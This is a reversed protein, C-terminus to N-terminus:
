RLNGGPEHGGDLLQLTARRRGCEIRQSVERRGTAPRDIGGDPGRRLPEKSCMLLEGIPGMQADRDGFNGRPGADMGHIEGLRIPKVEPERWGLRELSSAKTARDPRRDELALREGTGGRDPSQAILTM